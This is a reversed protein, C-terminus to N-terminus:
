NSPKRGIENILQQIKEQVGPIENSSVVLQKRVLKSMMNLKQQVNHKLTVIQESTALHKERLRIMMDLYEPAPSFDMDDPIPELLYLGDM